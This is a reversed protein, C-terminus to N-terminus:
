KEDVRELVTLQSGGYKKHKIVLFRDGAEELTEDLGYQALIYSHPALIDHALLTKLAKRGLKQDFPPDFFVVDFCRGTRAFDKVAAFADQVKVQAKLGRLAPKLLLLNEQIVEVCKPDREVMCVETAGCSLAEFGVAGSGAFLDLFRIGELNHGIIDFVAKRLLNQTPRIHAPMYINRGSYEGLIIKM